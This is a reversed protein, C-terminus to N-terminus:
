RSDPQWGEERRKNYEDQSMEETQRVTMRDRSPPGGSERSNMGGPADNRLYHNKKDWKSFLLGFAEDFRAPQDPNEKSYIIDKGGRTWTAVVDQEGNMGPRFHGGFRANAVEPDLLTKPQRREGDEDLWPNFWASSSFQSGVALENIRSDRTEIEGNAKELAKQMSDIQSQLGDLQQTLKNIEEDSRDNTDDGSVSRPRNTKSRLEKLESLVAEPDDISKYKELLSELEEIRTSLTRKDDRAQKLRTAPIEPDYPVENGDSDILVPLPVDGGQPTQTVINGDDDYKFPM